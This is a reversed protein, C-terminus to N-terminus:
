PEPPSSVVAAPIAPNAAFDFDALIKTRPFGAAAIRRASARKDRDECEVMVLRGPFGTPCNNGQSDAVIDDFRARITPLRLLRCASRDGRGRGGRHRRPPRDRRGRGAGCCRTTRDITPLPRNDGPLSAPRRETLHVVDDRGNRKHPLPTPAAYNPPRAPSQSWTPTSRGSLRPPPIGAIVDVAALHRHLLLVEILARTGTSDGGANRAAAWFADHVPTFVKAARASWPPRVPCPAPNRALIELYHDLQLSQGGTAILREHRAVETRGDFVVVSAAGLHM